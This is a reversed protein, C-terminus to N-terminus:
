RRDSTRTIADAIMAPLDDRLSWAQNNLTDLRNVVQGIRDDIRDFREATQQKIATLESTGAVTRSALVNFAGELDGMRRKLDRIEVEVDM